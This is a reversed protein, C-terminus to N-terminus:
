LSMTTANGDFDIFEKDKIDIYRGTTQRVTGDPIVYEGNTLKIPKDLVSWVWMLNNNMVIMGRKDDMKHYLTGVSGQFTIDKGDALKITKGTITKVTGDTNVVSGDDLTMPGTLAKIYWVKGERKLVGEKM